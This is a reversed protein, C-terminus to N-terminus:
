QQTTTSTKPAGAGPTGPKPSGISIASEAGRGLAKGADVISSGIAGFFGGEPGGTVHGPASAAPTPAAAASSPSTPYEQRPGSIGRSPDSSPYYGKKPDAAITYGGAPISKLVCGTCEVPALKVAAGTINVSNGRLTV